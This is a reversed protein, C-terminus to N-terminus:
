KTWGHRKLHLHFGFLVDELCAAAIISSGRWEDRFKTQNARLGDAATKRPTTPKKPTYHITKCEVQVDHNNKGILLDPGGQGIRSLIRVSFGSKRLGDVIGKQTSDVKRAYM